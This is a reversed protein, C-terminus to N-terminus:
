GEGGHLRRLAQALRPLRGLAAHARQPLLGLLSPLLGSLALRARQQPYRELRWAANWPQPQVFDVADSRGERHEREVMERLLLNGPMHKALTEDYCIRLLSLTRGLRVALHMAVPREGLRAVHWELWGRAAWRAVLTRYLAQKAPSRALAGGDEGKWGADELAVFADLLGPAAEAGALFTFRLAGPHERELRNRAKRLNVRLNESIRRLWPDFGGAIPLRAGEADPELAAPVRGHGDGLAVATTSGPAIGGVDVCLAGPAAQALAALLAALTLAELGPALLLDGESTYYEGPVRWRARALGLTRPSSEVVPLVGRLHEGDYALLARWRAGPPLKHAVHAEFWAAARFPSPAPAAAALADWAPAHLALDEPRSAVEVRM